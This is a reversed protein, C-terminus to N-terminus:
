SGKKRRAERLVSRFPIIMFLAIVLYLIVAVKPEWLGLGIVVAYSVLSPDLKATLARVDDESNDKTVLRQWLAYHWVIAIFGSIALLNLGYVTVAIREDGENTLYEALMHTPFPLVSVFFLLTLNLRLLIANARDLYETIVSHNLWANGITAFSVLYAVYIPWQEVLQHGVDKSTVAPITLELVLLTAAISFIGDSLAEMRATRLSIRRRINEPGTENLAIEGITETLAEWALGSDENREHPAPL